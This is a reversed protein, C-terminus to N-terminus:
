DIGELEMTQEVLDRGKGKDEFKVVMDTGMDLDMDKDKDMYLGKGMDMYIDKGKDM